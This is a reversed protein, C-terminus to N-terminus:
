RHRFNFDILPENQRFHTVNIASFRTLTDLLTDDHFYKKVCDRNGHLDLPMTKYLIISIHPNIAHKFNTPRRCPM